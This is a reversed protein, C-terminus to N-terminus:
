HVESKKYRIDAVRSPDGHKEDLRKWIEDINDHINMIMNKVSEGLCTRLVYASSDTFKINPGIYKNFDSKFKAYTRIEGDFRPLKMKEIKVTCEERTSINTFYDAVNRSVRSQIEQLGNICENDAEIKLSELHLIHEERCRELQFKVDRIGEAIQM